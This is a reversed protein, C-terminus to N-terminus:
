RKGNAVEKELRRCLEPSVSIQRVPGAADPRVVVMCYEGKSPVLVILTDPPVMISGDRIVHTLLPVIVVILAAIMLGLWERRRYDTM